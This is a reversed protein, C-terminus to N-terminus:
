NILRIFEALEQDGITKLNLRNLAACLKVCIIHKCYLFELKLLVNHKFVPCTCFNLTSFLYYYNGTSGIVQYLERSNDNLSLKTVFSQKDNNYKDILTLAEYLPAKYIHNLSELIEDPIKSTSTYSDKLRELLNEELSKIISLNLPLKEDSQNM